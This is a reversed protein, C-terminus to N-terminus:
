CKSGGTKLSPPTDQSAATGRFQTARLLRGIRLRHEPAWAIGLAAPGCSPSRTPNCEEPRTDQGASGAGPRWEPSQSRHMLATARLSESASQPTAAEHHSPVHPYFTPSVLPRTCTSPFYLRGHQASVLGRVMTSRTAM